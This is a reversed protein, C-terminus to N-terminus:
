FYWAKVRQRGAANILPSTYSTSKLRNTHTKTELPRLINQFRSVPGSISNKSPKPQTKYGTARQTGVSPRSGNIKVWIRDQVAWPDWIPFDTSKESFFWTKRLYIRESCRRFVGSARFDGAHRGSLTLFWRVDNSHIPDVFDLMEFLPKKKIFLFGSFDM